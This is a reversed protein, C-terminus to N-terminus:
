RAALVRTKTSKRTSRNEEDRQGRQLRIVEYGRADPLTDVVEEADEQGTAFRYVLYRKRTEIRGGPPFVLLRDKPGLYLWGPANREAFTLQVFRGTRPERLVVLGRPYGASMFEGQVVMARQRSGTCQVHVGSGRSDDPEGGFLPHRADRGQALHYVATDAIPHDRSLTVVADPGKGLACSMPMRGALAPLALLSLLLLAAAARQM